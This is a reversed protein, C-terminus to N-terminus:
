GASVAFQDGPGLGDPVQAAQTEAHVAVGEVEFHSCVRVESDESSTDTRGSQPVPRRGLFFNLSSPCVVDGSEVAGLLISCITRRHM